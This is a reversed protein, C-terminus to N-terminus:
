LGGLAHEHKLRVMEYLNGFSTLVNALTMVMPGAARFLNDRNSEVDEDTWCELYVALLEQVIEIQPVISQAVLEHYERWSLPAKWDFDSLGPLDFRGSLPKEISDGSIKKEMAMGERSISFAQLHGETPDVAWQRVAM